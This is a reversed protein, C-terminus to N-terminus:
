IKVFFEANKSSKDSYNKLFAAVLMAAAKM